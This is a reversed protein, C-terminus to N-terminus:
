PIGVQVSLPESLCGRVQCCQIRDTMYSSVQYLATGTIGYINLKKLLIDHNATDFAKKLDLFITGNMKGVDINQYWRNTIDLLATAM